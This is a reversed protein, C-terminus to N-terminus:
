YTIRANSWVTATSTAQAGLHAETGEFVIQFLHDGRALDMTAPVLASWSGDSETVLSAVEVDDLRLSLDMGSLGDNNVTDIDYLRGSLTWLCRPLMKAM